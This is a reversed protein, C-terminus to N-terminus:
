TLDEVRDGPGLYLEILGAGTSRLLDARVRGARLKKRVRSTAQDWRHRLVYEDDEDDWLLRALALWSVPTELQAVESLLRAMLGDFVVPAGVSPRVHVTDYHVTLTLAIDFRGQEITSQSALAALPALVVKAELGHLSVGEGNRYLRDPAVGTRIFVGHEHTWAIAPADPDFRPVLRPSPEGFLSMVGEIPFPGREVGDDGVLELMFVATPLIVDIVTLAYFGALVVRVGPALRVANDPRGDVSLRGRLALLKLETGRLSLMAHAESIRPDEIRLAAGPVRGILEGAGLAHESGDPLELRM